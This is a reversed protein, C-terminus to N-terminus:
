KELEEKEKMLKLKEQFYTSSKHIENNLEEKLKTLQEELEKRKETWRSKEFRFTKRIDNRKNEYTRLIKDKKSLAEKLKKLEEANCDRVQKSIAVARRLFTLIDKKDYGDGYTFGNAIIGHGQLTTKILVEKKGLLGALKLLQADTEFVQEKNLVKGQKIQKMGTEINKLTEKDIHKNKDSKMKDIDM